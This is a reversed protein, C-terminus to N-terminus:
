WQWAYDMESHLLFLLFVSVSEACAAVLADSLLQQVTLLM